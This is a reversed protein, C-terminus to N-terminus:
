KGLKRKIYNQIKKDKIENQVAVVVTVTGAGIVAGAVLIYPSVAKMYGATYARCCNMIVGSVEKAGKVINGDTFVLTTEDTFFEEIAM